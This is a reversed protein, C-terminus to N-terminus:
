KPGADPDGIEQLADRAYNWQEPQVAKEEGSPARMSDQKDSTM